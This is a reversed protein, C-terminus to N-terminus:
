RTPASLRRPRTKQTRYWRIYSKLYARTLGRQTAMDLGLLKARRAQLRLFEANARLDGADIRPLLAALKTPEERLRLRWRGVANAPGQKGKYGLRLAIRGYTQGAVERLEFARRSRISGFRNQEQM